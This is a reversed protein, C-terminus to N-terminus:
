QALTSMETDARKKLGQGVLRVLALSNSTDLATGCGKLSTFYKRALATDGKSAADRGAQTVATALRKLAEIQPLMEASKAQREANSLAKFQDETLSLASSSSFLLGSNWDAEVFRSVAAAQDGEQWAALASQTVPVAASPTAAPPPPQQGCGAFLLSAALVAGLATTKM